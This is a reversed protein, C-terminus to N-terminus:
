YPRRSITKSVLTNKVYPVSFFYVLGQSLFMNYIRRPNCSTWHKIFIWISTCTFSCSKHTSSRKEWHKSFISPFEISSFFFFKLLIIQFKTSLYCTLGGIAEYTTDFASGFERLVRWKSFIMNTAYGAVM